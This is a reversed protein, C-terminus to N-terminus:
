SNLTRICTRVARFLQQMFFYLVGLIVGFAALTGAVGKLFGLLCEIMLSYDKNRAHRQSRKRSALADAISM